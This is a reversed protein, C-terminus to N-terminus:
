LKLKKTRRIKRIIRFVFFIILILVIAIIIYYTNSTKILGLKKAEEQSYINIDLFETKTFIKNESDRYEVKIPIFSIKNNIYINFSATEFDDPEINGVYVSSASLIHYDSSPVLEASVFKIDALGKNVFRIIIEGKDGAKVVKSEDIAVGLIAQSKVNISIVTLEENDNYRIKLPIKYIQPRADPLAILQFSVTERTGEEIEDIIKEAASNIPAFPLNTATM